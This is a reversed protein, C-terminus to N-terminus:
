YKTKLRRDQPAINWSELIDEVDTKDIKSMLVKNPIKERVRGFDPNSLCYTHEWYSEYCTIYKSRVYVWQFWAHCHYRRVESVWPASEITVCKVPWLWVFKRRWRARRVEEEEWTEKYWLM